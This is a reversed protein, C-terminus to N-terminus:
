FLLPSEKSYILRPIIAEREDTHDLPLNSQHDEFSISETMIVLGSDHYGFSDDRPEIIDM